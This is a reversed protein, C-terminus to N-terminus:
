PDIELRTLRRTMVPTMLIPRLRCLVIYVITVTLHTRVTVKGWDAVSSYYQETATSQATCTAGTTSCQWYCDLSSTFQLLSLSTHHHEWVGDSVVHSLTLLPLAISGLEHIASYWLQLILCGMEKPFLFHNTHQMVQGANGYNHWM